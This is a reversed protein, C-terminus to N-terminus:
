TVGGAVVRPRARDDGPQGSAAGVPDAAAPAYTTVTGSVLQATRALRPTGTPVRGSAIQQVQDDTLYVARFLVAEDSAAIVGLTDVAYGVGKAGRAIRHAPAKEAWGSGSGLAAETAERSVTRFVLRQLFLDRVGGIADVRALQTCAIVSFAAKRGATMIRGLPSSKGRKLLGDLFLLEDILLLDVPEDPTPTHARVRRAKQGALRTKMDAEMEAVMAEIGELSDAYRYVRFLGNAGAANPEGEQDLADELAALEVGGAPDAVRLRVPIGQVLFGLLTAWLASSKGSGSQGAILLPTFVCEGAANLIPLAVPHGADSLGYPATGAAAPPLDQPLVTRALPDGWRFHLEVTGTNAVPHLCAERCGGAVVEAMAVLGKQLPERAIGCRAADVTAVVTEGDSRVRWPPLVPVEPLGAAACARAWQARVRKQRRLQDASAAVSLGTRRQRYGFWAAAGALMLAPTVLLATVGSGSQVWVVLWTLVAFAAMPHTRVARGFALTQIIGARWLVGAVLLEFPSIRRGRGRGFRSHGYWRSRGAM